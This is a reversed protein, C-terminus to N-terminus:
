ADPGSGWGDHPDAREADRPARYLVEGQETVDLMLQDRAVLADLRREVELVDPVGLRLAITRSAGPQRAAEIFRGDGLNRVRDKASEVELLHLGAWLLAGGGLVPAVGLGVIGVLMQRLSTACLTTLWAVTGFAGTLAGLCVLM